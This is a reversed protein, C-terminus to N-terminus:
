DDQPELCIEQLQQDVSECEEDTLEKEIVMNPDAWHWDIIHCNTDEEAGSNSYIVDVEDGRFDITARAM